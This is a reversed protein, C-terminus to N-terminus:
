GNTLSYGLAALVVGGALGAMLNVLALPRLRVLGIRLTEVMWTSYTTFGGLFGALAIAWSSTVGDAGVVLGLLFAGSLNVAMTGAPFGAGAREQVAGSVLYRLVAGVGGAVSLIVFSV